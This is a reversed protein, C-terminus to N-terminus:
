MDICFEGIRSPIHGVWDGTFLGNVLCETPVTTIPKACANLPPDSKLVTHKPNLIIPQIRIVNSKKLKM